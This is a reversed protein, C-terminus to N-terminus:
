RGTSGLTALLEMAEVARDQPVFLHDHHFASVANVSIGAESLRETIAALLGVAHLSSHVKLAIWRCPFDSAIGAREAEAQPLILTLGESERFTMVPSLGAPPQDGQGLTAFVFLGQQLEPQMTAILSTLSTEGNL